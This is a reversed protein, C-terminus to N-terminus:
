KVVPMSVTKAKMLVAIRALYDKMAWASSTPLCGDDYLWIQNERVEKHAIKRVQAATLKIGTPAKPLARSHEGDGLPRYERNLVEWPAKKDRRQLCYPM